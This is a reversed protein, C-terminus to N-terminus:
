HHLDHTKEKLRQLCVRRLPEEIGMQILKAEVMGEINTPTIEVAIVPTTDELRQLASTAQESDVAKGEWHYKPYQKRLTELAALIQHGAPARVRLRSDDPLGKIEKDIREMAVDLSIDTANLTKYVAAGRNEIFQTHIDEASRVTFRWHGKAHEEGHNLRDFSGNTLTRGRQSPHHIHGSLVLYRTISEYNNRDHVLHPKTPPLQYDFAGHLLTFDVQELNHKALLGKVERWTEVTSSAWSGSSWEDPVGLINIGLSEIYLIELKTIYHLEVPIQGLEAIQLFLDNQGRDHKPTGELVVVVVKCRACRRLLSNIWVKAHRVNRDAAYSIQDFVDGVIFLVDLEKLYEETFTKSLNRVIHITPTRNHLLHIDSVSAGNIESRIPSPVKSPSTM